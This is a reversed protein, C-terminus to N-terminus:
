EDGIGVEAMEDEMEDLVSLIDAQLQLTQEEYEKIVVHIKKFHEAQLEDRIAQLTAIRAQRERNRQAAQNNSNM